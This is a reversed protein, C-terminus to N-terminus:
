VSCWEGLPHQHVEPQDVSLAEIKAVAQAVDDNKTLMGIAFKIEHSAGPSLGVVRGNSEEFSRPNPFNTAPELGAVYGDAVGVTNKWLSFCPLAATDYCISVGRSRDANLLAATAYGSEDSGLEMFYVQEAYCSDPGGFKNWSEMGSAAHEDRPVLKKIPALFSSGKELVPSGFNNHYLMQFNAPRDSLNTVRDVISIENSEVTMSIETQLELRQFHFRNEQVTGRVVITGAEEDLEVEVNCAPLNAIRGHLPFALRGAEDFEPAGNSALGCRVMMEDFGDLWGIGSPENVPVWMPHVPGAVPSDWGFRVDNSTAQWIGMGRTPLIVVSKAGCQLTVQEVGNSQGRKLRRFEFGLKKSPVKVDGPGGEWTGGVAFEKDATLLESLRYITKM